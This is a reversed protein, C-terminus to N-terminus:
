DDAYFTVARRLADRVHARIVPPGLVEIEDANSLLFLRLGQTDRLTCNLDWKGDSSQVMSQNDALRNETLRNHLNAGLRLRLEVPEDCHITMLHKQVELSNVDFEEPEPIEWGSDTIAVVRHLMLACLTKPGNSSYKGRKAGPEPVCGEPWEEKLVYASLYINSDQYSLALPKLYYVCEVGGADRPLYTVKLPENYLLADQIRAVHAPDSRGPKLVTFRTGTTIRKAWELKRVPAKSMVRDVYGRLKKLMAPPAQLGFRAAHDIIASVTMAETPLLTLDVGAGEWVWFNARLDSDMKVQRVEGIRELAELDRQTSKLIHNELGLEACLHEHLVPTSQPEKYELLIKRLCDRRDFLDM